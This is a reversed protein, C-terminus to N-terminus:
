IVLAWGTDLSVIIHKGRRQLAEARAGTLREAFREPFPFRLDARRTRVRQFTAGALARELGRRVVEVEPLEPVPCRKAASNGLRSQAAGGLGVSAHSPM